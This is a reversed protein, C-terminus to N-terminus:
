RIQPTLGLRVAEAGAQSRTRVGLKRLIASLHHDITRRSVLLVAILQTRASKTPRPV